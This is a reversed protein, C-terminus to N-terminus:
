QKKEKSTQRKFKLGLNLMADFDSHFAIDLNVPVTTSGRTASGEIKVALTSDEGNEGRTLEIKLVDYDLDALAKALNDRMDESVGGLALNDLIPEPDKIRMKGAEGPTSFLYANRIFSGSM